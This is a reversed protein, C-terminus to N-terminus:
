VLSRALTRTDNCVPLGAIARSIARLASKSERRSRHRLRSLTGFALLTRVTDRDLLKKLQSMSSALPRIPALTEIVSVDWVCSRLITWM